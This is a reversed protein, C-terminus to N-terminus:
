LSFVDIALKWIIFELSFIVFCFFGVFLCLSCLLQLLLQLLSPFFVGFVSFVHFLFWDFLSKFLIRNEVIHVCFGKTLWLCMLSLICTHHLTYIYTDICLIKWIFRDLVLWLCTKRFGFFLSRSFWWSDM